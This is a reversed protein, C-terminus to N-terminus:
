YLKFEDFYIEIKKLIFNESVEFFDSEPGPEDTQILVVVFVM